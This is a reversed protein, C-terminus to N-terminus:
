GAAGVSQRTENSMAQELTVHADVDYSSALGLSGEFRGIAEVDAAVSGEMCISAHLLLGAQGGRHRVLSATGALKKGGATVNFCGDCHSGAVRGLGAPVGISRLAQVLHDCFGRFRHTVDCDEGRWTEFLSVNFIGPRHAVTTGGSPRVFVPWGREVSSLAANGFGPM